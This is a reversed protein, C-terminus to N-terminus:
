GLVPPAWLDSNPGASAQVGGFPLYSAEWVVNAAMDTAFIPRGIHETPVAYYSGNDWVGVLRDGAWCCFM